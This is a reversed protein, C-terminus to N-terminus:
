VPQDSTATIAVIPAAPTTTLSGFAPADFETWTSM